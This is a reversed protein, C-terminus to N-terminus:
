ARGRRVPQPRLLLYGFVWAVAITVGHIWEAGVVSNPTNLVILMDAMPIFSGALM